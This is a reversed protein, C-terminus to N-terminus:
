AFAKGATFRTILDFSNKPQDYPVIHGANRVILFTLNDEVKAYGAVENGVRWIKRTANEWNEQGHWSLKCLFNETLPSAVIIDLQGNYFLVNYNERADLIDVVLPAVSKYMDERMFKEVMSGDNYPRNGVHISRRVSPLQVFNNYYGMDKPESTM